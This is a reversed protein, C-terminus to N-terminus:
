LHTSMWTLTCKHIDLVTLSAFVKPAPESLTAAGPWALVHLRRWYRLPLRSVPRKEHSAQKHVQQEEFADFLYNLRREGHSSIKCIQLTWELRHLETVESRDHVTSKAQRIWPTAMQPGWGLGRGRHNARCVLGRHGPRSAQFLQKCHDTQKAKYIDWASLFSSCLLVSPEQLVGACGKQSVMPM